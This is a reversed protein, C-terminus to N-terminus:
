YSAVKKIVSLICAFSSYVYLYNPSTFIYARLSERKQQYLVESSLVQCLQPCFMDFM